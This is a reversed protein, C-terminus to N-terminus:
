ENLGALQIFEKEIIQIEISLDKQLAEIEQITKPKTKSQFSSYLKIKPETGSPRITLKGKDTLLLQIVDSSPLGKFALKNAEGIATQSKYDLIGIVKRSSMSKGLISQGNEQLNKMASKIKEKGAEGKLTISKLSELYLGYKLYIENLYSLIDKKESLIELLLLTSSLSDKDRLLDIPLYGYSEEGGFLFKKKKDKEIKTMEQGIYKFGTLVDKIKIKNKKAIESQLDTTVITKLVLYEIKSKSLNAKECLYACMISGIQNGNLLTYEGSDNLIGIGMRDADPDTAVFVKAKKEKSYKESLVLAEKEEPNPFKVTPFEGNPKAQSPVLFVKKYGAKNLLAKMYEGGTGHLPSYVIGYNRDKSNLKKNYIPTALVKKIYSAFVKKDVAKVFKKYDSDNKKLQPIESWDTIEEITQIIKKDDPPVLQGGDALYAKFGNYEPPNHSATIVVGGVAKLERVAFSLLPTPAVAPFISVSIKHKAAVFATTEAFEKSRRRSDYAIVISIKKGKYKKLLYKCFGLASRGVTFSNMRGIGNGIVGRMGGTGFELPISYGEIDPNSEGKLFKELVSNAELQIEKSFPEKTWSRIYAEKSNM